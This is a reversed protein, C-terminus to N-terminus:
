SNVETASVSRQGAEVVPAPVIEPVNAEGAEAMRRLLRAKMADAVVRHSAVGILNRLEYPDSLLDYLYSEEYRDSGADTFANRDPATVGYKWRKTRVVRGVESESIQAFAEEPWAEATGRVLPLMSRGQMEAPVPLGAADLLTPPLDILSVLERVQRGGFFGPGTIATPVRLSADHGSRKYEGNRTKFHNGHDSTFLVITNEDLELSKLADLVRGLAEDLRKVMGYYGAIHEHTTGGLAALDPPIWGGRYREAYGEPAPYDDRHNQHHPELYSVFLFFPDDQHRDIYRIAADTMADVRYGPLKVAECENNYLVTHYADSSFELVDAALWEQYGGRKSAPVPEEHALHWKGIYGTHYGAENFHHALTRADEPLPIGNVFCGTTTAYKGTQLCSRAPGCVPQCTFSHTFHAGQLAMRDFNPMLGMPNGHLGSTDWRQQDTFFVIVNPRKPKSM